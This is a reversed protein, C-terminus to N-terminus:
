LSRELDGNVPKALPIPVEKALFDRISDGIGRFYLGFEPIQRGHERPLLRRGGGTPETTLWDSRDKASGKKYLEKSSLM